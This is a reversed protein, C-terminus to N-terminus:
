ILFNWSMQKARVLFGYCLHEQESVRILLNKWIWQTWRDGSSVSDNVSFHLYWFLVM